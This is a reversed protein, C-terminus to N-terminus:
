WVDKQKTTSNKCEALSLERSAFGVPYEAGNVFNSLVAGLSNDSADTGLVFPSSYDPHSLFTSKIMAAKLNEFAAQCDLTWTFRRNRKTLNHLPKAIGAFDKVFRRYYSCFGILSKVETINDQRKGSKLSQIKCEDPFNKPM